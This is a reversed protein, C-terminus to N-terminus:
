ALNPPKLAAPTPAATKATSWATIMPVIARWEEPSRLVSTVAAEMVM